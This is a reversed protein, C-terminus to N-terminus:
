GLSDNKPPVRDHKFGFLARVRTRGDDRIGLGHHKMAYVVKVIMWFGM